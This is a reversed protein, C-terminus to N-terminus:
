GRHLELYPGCVEVVRECQAVDFMGVHCDDRDIGLQEALWAYAAKRKWLPDLANHAAIKAKRLDANAHRGLPTTTDPHCGVWARCPRCLYIPGFSRGGYVEASDILVSPETCYPCDPAREAM